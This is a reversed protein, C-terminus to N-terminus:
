NAPQNIFPDGGSLGARDFLKASRQPLGARINACFSNLIPTKTIIKRTLRM